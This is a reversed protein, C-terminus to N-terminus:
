DALIKFLIISVLLMLMGIKIIESVSTESVESLYESDSMKRSHGKSKPPKPTTKSPANQHSPSQSLVQRSGWFYVANESTGAITFTDGCEVM